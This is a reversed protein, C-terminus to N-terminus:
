RSVNSHSLKLYIFQSCIYESICKNELSVYFTCLFIHLFIGQLYNGFGGPGDTIMLKFGLKIKDGNRIPVQFGWRSKM